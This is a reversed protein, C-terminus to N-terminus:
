RQALESPLASTDSHAHPRTASDTTPLASRLALTFFMPLWRQPLPIAARERRRLVVSVEGVCLPRRGQDWAESRSPSLGEINLTRIEGSVYLNQSNSIQEHAFGHMPLYRDVKVGYESITARPTVSTSFRAYTTPRPASPM